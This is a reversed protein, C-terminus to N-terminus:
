GTVTVALAVGILNLLAHTAIGPYVSNTASRLYGMACGFVVIAPLQEFQGHSVGFALGTLVIATSHGHRELLKFGLGRFMLEELIPSVAVLVLANLAYPLARDPDFPAGNGESAGQQLFPLIALLAMMGIVILVGVLAVRPLSWSPRRLAFTDRPESPGAIKLVVALQLGSVVVAFLVTSYRYRVDDPVDYIAKVGIILLASAAVLATWALLRGNDRTANASVNM